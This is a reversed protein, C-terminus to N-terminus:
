RTPRANTREYAEVKGKLETLKREYEAAVQRGIDANRQAENRFHEVKADSEILRQRLDTMERQRGEEIRDRLKRNEESLSDLLNNLSTNDEM